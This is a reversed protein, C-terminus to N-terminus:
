HAPPAPRAGAKELNRTMSQVALLTQTLESTISEDEMAGWKQLLQPCLTEADKREFNRREDDLSDKFAFSIESPVEGDSVGKFASSSLLSKSIGQIRSEVDKM